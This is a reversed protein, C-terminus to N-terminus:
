AKCSGSMQSPLRVPATKVARSKISVLIAGFSAPLAASNHSVLSDSLKPLLKKSAIKQLRSIKDSYVAELMVRVFDAFIQSQKEAHHRKNEAAELVADRIHIEKRDATHPTQTRQEINKHHRESVGDSSQNQRQQAPQGSIRPLCSSM